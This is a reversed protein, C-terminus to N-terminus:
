TRYPGAPVAPAHLPKLERRLTQLLFHRRETTLLVGFRVRTDGELCLTPLTTENVEVKSKVENVAYIGSWRFRRRRGFPGIGTFLEAADGRVVLTCRGWVAVLSVTGLVITAVLFPIGFLSLGPDFQGTVLQYGYAISLSVVSFFLTFLVVYTSLHSRFRAGASFGDATEEFWAGPPVNM